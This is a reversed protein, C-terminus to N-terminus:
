RMQVGVPSAAMRAPLKLNGVDALKNCAVSFARRRMSHTLVEGSLQRLVNLLLWGMFAAFFIPPTITPMSIPM